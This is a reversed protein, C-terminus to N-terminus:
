PVAHAAPPTVGSLYGLADFELAVAYLTLPPVGVLPGYVYAGGADALALFPEVGAAFQLQVEIVSPEIGFFPGYPYAGANLTVFTMLGANPAANSVALRFSGAGLPSTMVLAFKPEVTLWFTGESQAATPGYDAVLIQYHQGQVLEVTLSSLNGVGSDDDCALAAGGCSSYVAVLTDLLTGATQGLPTNTHIRYQGSSPALYDYFVGSNFPNCASFGADDSAGVNTGFVSTAGTAFPIATAAACGDNPPHPHCAISLDFLLGPLVAQQLVGVRIKYTTAPAADFAVTTGGCAVPTPGGFFPPLYTCSGSYVSVLDAAGVASVTVEAADAGTTFLYWLDSYGASWAGCGFADTQVTSGAFTLGSHAGEGLASAGSCADNGAAAPEIVEVRFTGAGTSLSTGVRLLYTEGASADFTVSAGDDFFSGVGPVTISCGGLIGGGVTQSCAIATAGSACTGAPYVALVHNQMTGGAFSWSSACTNFTVPGTRVAAYYFWVDDDFTAACATTFLATSSNTAGVNTYYVNTSGNPPSPNIGALLIFANACSNNAPAQGVAAAALVAALCVPRLSRLYLM